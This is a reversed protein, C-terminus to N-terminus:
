VRLRRDAYRPQRARRFRRAEGCPRRTNRAPSTPRSGREKMGSSLAGAPVQTLTFSGDAGSLVVNALDTQLHVRAGAIPTTTGEERVFGSVSALAASACLLMCTVSIGSLRRSFPQTLTKIEISM